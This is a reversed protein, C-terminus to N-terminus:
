FFRKVKSVAVQARVATREFVGSVYLDMLAEFASPRMRRHLQSRGSSFSERFVKFGELRNDFFSSPSFSLTAPEKKAQPKTICLLKCM